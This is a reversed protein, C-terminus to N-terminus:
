PDTASLLPAGDCADIGTTAKSIIDIMSEDIPAAYRGGERFCPSKYGPFLVGKDIAGCESPAM